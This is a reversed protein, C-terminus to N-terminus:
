KILKFASVLEDVQQDNIPHMGGLARAAIAAKASYEAVEMRDFAELLTRGSSVLCDNKIMVVPTRPSLV